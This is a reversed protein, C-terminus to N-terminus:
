WKRRIPGDATFRMSEGTIGFMRDYDRILKVLPSERIYRPSTYTTGDDFNEGDKRTFFWTGMAMIFEDLNKHTKLIDRARNVVLGRLLDHSRSICEKLQREAARDYLLDNKNM